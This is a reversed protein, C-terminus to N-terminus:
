QKKKFKDGVLSSVTHVARSLLQQLIGHARLGPLLVVFLVIFYLLLLNNVSSGIYALMLLSTLLLFSFLLPKSDKLDTWQRWLSKATFCTLALESCVSDYIADEAEGFRSADFLSSSVLPVIYDALTVIIGIVSLSTLLSSDLLWVLLFLSSVCAVLLPAHHPQSWVCVSHLYVLVPKWDVLQTRTKAVLAQM